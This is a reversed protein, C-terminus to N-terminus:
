FFGGESKKIHHEQQEPSLMTFYASWGGMRVRLDRYASPEKQAARLTATDAVTLTMLNGGLDRFTKIIGVLRNTGEDGEVARSSMALDLPSGIPINNTGMSSFSRIAATVGKLLAGTSPSFNSAVPKAANRGDATAGTGEGVAIYWSFTGIGPMFAIDDYKANVGRIIESYWKVIRRGIGDAREDGMGYKPCAAMDSQINEYGAFDSDIAEVIDAMTYREQEFVLQKIAALSDILHSMGEFIIGHIIYRTSMDTMDRGNEVPGDLMTSLLPTPAISSRHPFMWAMHEAMVDAVYSVNQMCKDIVTEFSDFESPDGLDPAEQKGDIHCRGRNLAWELCKIGNIKQFYFDTRGPLTCEWCGDNAFDRADELPFGFSTYAELVPKDNYICPMGGGTKLARAVQALFWEPTNENIRVSMVPNTMRLRRSSELIMVSAMNVADTGDRKCGGIIMNQNWHITADLDDRVNYRQQGHDYIHRERWRKDHNKQIERFDQLERRTISSVARENFKLIWLDIMEQAEDISLRGSELDSALYPYLFQDPRGVAMHNGTIQLAIHAFWVSQCAERLTRAPYMPVRECIDAADALEKSRGPDGCKEALDRLYPAHRRAYKELGELAILSAQFFSKEEEGDAGALREKVTKALEITGKELVRKYDPSIHGFMSYIGYGYKEGEKIDEPLAFEPLVNENALEGGEYTFCGAFLQRDWIGVPVRELKQRESMAKRVLLPLKITEDNLVSGVDRFTSKRKDMADRVAEIADAVRKRPESDIIGASYDKATEVMYKEEENKM